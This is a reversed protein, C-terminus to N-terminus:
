GSFETITGTTNVRKGILKKTEIEWQQEFRLWPPSWDRKHSVLISASRYKIFNLFARNWIPAIKDLKSTFKQPYYTGELQLYNTGGESIAPNFYINEGFLRYRVTNNTSSTDSPDTQATKEEKDYTMPIYVGDVKYRLVKLQAIDAPLEVVAQDDETTIYRIDDMWGGYEADFMWTAVLDFCEQVAVGLKQATYYGQHGPSKQLLELVDRELSGLAIAM